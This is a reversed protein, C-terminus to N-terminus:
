PEQCRCNVKKKITPNTKRWNQKNLSIKPKVQLKKDGCSSEFDKRKDELM